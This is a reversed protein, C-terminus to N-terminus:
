GPPRRRPADGSFLGSGSSGSFIKSLTTGSWNFAQSDELFYAKESSTKRLNAIHVFDDKRKVQNTEDEVNEKCSLWVIGVALERGARYLKCFVACRFHRRGLAVKM